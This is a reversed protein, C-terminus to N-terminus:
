RVRAEQPNQMQKRVYDVAAQIVVDNDDSVTSPGGATPRRTAQVILDPSVGRNSIAQGSPSYFKATTLRVGLDATNLTFIGQVSGKGYSRQGVVTGRRHDHIAGAFIESASATDGDILVLLPVRWTGLSHARYDFDEHSNRGRTSVINGSTVFKDAVEVAATLLGGPNGRLDIVLSQMGERHLKWLAADVDRSTTKQFSALKMYGIGREADLIHANEISPVEVRRRVLRVRRSRDQPDLLLLETSSGETGKLLDAAEDTSIEKTAMGDVEVIRDGAKIGAQEAPSGGIVSVIELANQQARLEIGLGVFNGEIQNFVDELQSSTLFSSYQDLSCMAGCTFEMITAVPRLGLQQSAARAVNSAVERAQQRTRVVTVEMRRHINQQFAKVTEESAHLSNQQRFTADALAIDLTAIGCVALEQWDPPQVYHSEIKDLIEDYVDLAVTESLSTLSHLYSQDEYRRALDYHSRARTLREWLDRRDPFERVAEEYHVLAEGWRQQAELEYGRQLADKLGSEPSLSEAPILVQGPAPTPAALGSGFVLFAFLVSAAVRKWTAPRLCSRKLMM